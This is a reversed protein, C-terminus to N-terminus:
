KDVHIEVKDPKKEEVITTRKEVRVPPNDVHVDCAALGIALATLALSATLTRTM